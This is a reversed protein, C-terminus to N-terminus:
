ESESDMGWLDEDEATDFSGAWRSAVIVESLDKAIVYVHHGSRDAHNADAGTGFVTDILSYQSSSTRGLLDMWIAGGNLSSSCKKFTTSQLSLSGTTLAVNLAGGNTFSSFSTFSCSSVTLSGTSSVTVFSQSTSSGSGTFM